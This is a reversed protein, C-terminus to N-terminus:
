TPPNVTEDHDELFDELRDTRDTKQALLVTALARELPGSGRRAVLKLDQETPRNEGDGRMEESM